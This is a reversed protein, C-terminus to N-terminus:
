TAVDWLWGHERVCQAWQDGDISAKHEKGM